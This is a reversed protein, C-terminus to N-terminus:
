GNDNMNTLILRYQSISLRAMKGWTYNELVYKKCRQIYCDPSTSYEKKALLISNAISEPTLDAKWGLNYKVIEDSVNTGETVICPNGYTLGDLITMPSGEYRSTLLLINASELAIKKDRGYITGKDVVKIRKFNSIRERVFELQHKNGTGYLYVVISEDTKDIISLANMLYDLGKHYIDYRGLYYFIPTSTININKDSAEIVDKEVVGNPIVVDNSTRYVSSDMEAKNTFIYGIANKIVSRYITNNAVIKKIYSKKIAQRGFSGHPENCYPINLSRLIIEMMRYEMQYGHFIALDPGFSKIFEVISSRENLYVFNQSGISDVPEVISLVKSSVGSIKNQEETLNKLVVPIGSNPSMPSLATIHLINM